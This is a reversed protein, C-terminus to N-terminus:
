TNPAAFSWVSWCTYIRRGSLRWGLEQLRAGVLRRFVGHTVVAVCVPADPLSLLWRVAAAARQVDEASADRRRVIHYGWQAHTLADWAAIPLRLPMWDPVPLPSERFLASRIIQRAPALRTASELARPLDSAVVVDAREVSEILAAPPAAGPDIGAADGAARWRLFGAANM